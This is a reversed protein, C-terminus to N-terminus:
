INREDIFIEKMPYWFVEKRNIIKDDKINVGEAELLKQMQGSHGFGEKGSLFGQSNVVRHCPLKEEYNGSGKMIQGVMRSLNPYGVAEAIAGYSTVRGFPIRSVIDYVAQTLADKEQKSLM